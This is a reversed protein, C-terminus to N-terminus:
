YTEGEGLLGAGPDIGGPRASYDSSLYKYKRVDLLVLCTM